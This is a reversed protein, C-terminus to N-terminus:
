LCLPSFTTWLIAGKMKISDDEFTCNILIDLWILSKVKSNSSKSHRFFVMNSKVSLRSLCLIKFSNSNLGSRIIPKPTVKGKTGLFGMNSRTRLMAQKTKISVKHFKCIIQVPM